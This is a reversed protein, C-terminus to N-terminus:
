RGTWCAPRKELFASIGEQADAAMNNMSMVEKAYAYAKPQDLDIQAYFAQKGLGVVLPSAEAVRCALKKTESRLEAAPVVRNVLGWDAATAADIMEGTLLMELARKRSVTRSLAVMPTTCFLGIRVGPTAFRAQESAVALDCTAVLQCGAATAIGQVEAIVPQPISQVREMMQTCVDFIRRYEAINRGVMESLDHGSSFVSGAAALIVARLDPNSGVTDLCDLVELMLDLSLANRRQPRNLTVIAISGDTEYLLSKYNM